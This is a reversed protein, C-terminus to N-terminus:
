YSENSGREESIDHMQILTHDKPDLDDVNGYRPNTGRGLSIYNIQNRSYLNTDIIDQVYGFETKSGVLNFQILNQATTAKSDYGDFNTHELKKM